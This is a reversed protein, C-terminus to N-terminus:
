VYTYMYRYYIYIYTGQELDNSATTPTNNSVTTTPEMSRITTLNTIKPGNIVTPLVVNSPVPQTPRPLLPTTATTSSTVIATYIIIVNM